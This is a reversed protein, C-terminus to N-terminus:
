NREIFLKLVLNNISSASVVRVRFKTDYANVTTNWGVLSNNVWNNSNTLVINNGGMINDTKNTLSITISGVVDTDVEVRRITGNFGVSFNSSKHGTSIVAGGGDIIFNATSMLRNSSNILTVDAKGPLATNNLFTGDAKAPLATGNVYSQFNTLNNNHATNSANIANDRGQSATNNNASSQNMADLIPQVANIARANTFWLNVDETIWNTTINNWTENYVRLQPYVGPSISPEKTDAYTKVANQSPYLADSTGLGVDTSKNSLKEFTNNVYVRLMSESTMVRNTGSSAVAVFLGLEPSWAVSYWSSAESASRSTWTIGDPSTMV